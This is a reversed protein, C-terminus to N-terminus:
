NSRGGKLIKIDRCELYYEKKYKMIRSNIFEIKQNRDMDEFGPIAGVMYFTFVELPGRPESEQKSLYYILELPSVNLEKLVRENQELFWEEFTKM